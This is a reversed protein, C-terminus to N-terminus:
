ADHSAADIWDAAAVQEIGDTQLALPALRAIRTDPPDIKLYDLSFETPQLSRM